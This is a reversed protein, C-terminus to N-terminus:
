QVSVVLFICRQDFILVPFIGHNLFPHRSCININNEPCNILWGEYSGKYTKDNWIMLLVNVGEDAKAKLLEGVNSSGDADQEEKGPFKFSRYGTRSM